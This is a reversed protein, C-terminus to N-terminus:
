IDVAEVRGVIDGRRNKVPMPSLDPMADPELIGLKKLIAVAVVPRGRMDDGDAIKLAIGLGSPYKESPIIGCAWVGDAGVKSILSGNGARMLTTDLRTTGGILEPYQTMAAVIRKCAAQTIEPFRAPNVLNAFSKAMASVPLCFNPAACGDTGLSVEETEGFDKICRLIRGQIRNEPSEYEDTGSGIHKAFALMAAHKGSCNNHLQTPEEGNRKMQKSTAADFPFHTGCRLDSESFGAKALMSAAVKVHMAEGSHSAVALAVEEENFGFADAAGSTLNPIFQFPKAASRFYTATSPEGKALVVNGEGDLVIFHGAHVSELNQGRFVNALPEANM